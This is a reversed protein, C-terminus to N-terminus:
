AGSVATVGATTGVFVYGGSLTPTAFRSTSGVQLTAIISGSDIDLAYLINGGLSYVARGAIAPSGVVQGPM